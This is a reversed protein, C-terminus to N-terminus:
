LNAPWVWSKRMGTELEHIDFGDNEFIVNEKPVKLFNILFNCCIDPIRNYFRQMEALNMNNIYEGLYKVFKKYDDNFTGEVVAHPFNKVEMERPVGKDRINLDVNLKGIRGTAVVIFYNLYEGFTDNEPYLHTHSGMFSYMQKFTDTRFVQYILSPFFGKTIDELREICDTSKLGSFWDYEILNDISGIFYLNKGKVSYLRKDKDLERVSESIGEETLFDDDACFAVYDTTVEELGMILKQLPLVDPSFHKYRISEYLKITRMNENMASEESSDLVIILPKIRKYNSMYDLVRKLYYPRNYTPIIISVNECSSHQHKTYIRQKHNQFHQVIFDNSRGALNADSVTLGRTKFYNKYHQPMMLIHIARYNYFMAYHVLSELDTIGLLKRYPNKGAPLQGMPSRGSYALDVSFGHEKLTNAIAHTDYNPMLDIFLINKRTDYQRIGNINITHSETSKSSDKDDVQVPAKELIELTTQLDQQNPNLRHSQKLSTIAGERDGSEMQALALRNLAVHNTNDLTVIKQLLSVSEECLKEEEFLTLLNEQADQHLPDVEFAKKFYDIGESIRRLTHCIVGLNNLIDANQPADKLLGQFLEEAELIKGQSFLEEGDKIAKHTGYNEQEEALLDVTLHKASSITPQRNRKKSIKTRQEM